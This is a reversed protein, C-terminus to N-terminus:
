NRVNDNHGNGIKESWKGTSIEDNIENRQIAMTYRGSEVFPM